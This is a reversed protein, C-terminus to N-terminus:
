IQYRKRLDKKIEDLSKGKLLEEVAETDMALFKGSKLGYIIFDKDNTWIPINLKLALAVFPSDKVDFNRAIEYATEFKEMYVAKPVVVIREMVELILMELEEKSVGKREAKKVIVDNFYMNIENLAWDPSYIVVNKSNILRRVRDSLLFYSFLINSDVILFLKKGREEM